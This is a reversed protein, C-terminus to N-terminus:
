VTSTEGYKLYIWIAISVIVILISSVASGFAWDRVSLFQNQILNGIFMTKAGGMLDPTVYDGFAPVFVLICGAVIGRANCPLTVHTFSRWPSAGLDCAAELLGLDMKGFAAYIPTVMYPLYNYVLGLLVAGYSYLFSSQTHIGCVSLMNAALGTPRLIIMWAYIRLLFSTWLPALFLFLLWLQNKKPVCFALWAALAIGLGLCIVTTQFALLLSRWLVFFYPPHFFRFYNDTTLTLTVRGLTDRSGLSLVLLILLPVLLFSVLWIATPWLVLMARAGSRGNGAEIM